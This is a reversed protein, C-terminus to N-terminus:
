KGLWMAGGMAQRLYQPLARQEQTDLHEMLQTPAEAAKPKKQPPENGEGKEMSKDDDYDIRVQTPDIERKGSKRLSSKCQVNQMVQRTAETTEAMKPPISAGTNADVMGEMASLLEKVFNM